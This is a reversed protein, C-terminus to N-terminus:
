KLFRLLLVELGLFLLAMLICWKWLRTGESLESLQKTVSGAIANIIKVNNLNYQSLQAEIENVTLNTLDSENRDYNFAVVANSQNNMKLQYNGAEKIQDGFFITMQGANNRHQTIVDFNLAPNSLHFVSEGNVLTEDIVFSTARGLTYSLAAQQQSYLAINYLTPAFLYHDVLNSSVNDLPVTFLLVKGKGSKYSSLLADGGQLKLMTERNSQSTVGQQFHRHTLPVDMNEPLRPFVNKYLESQLEITSVKEESTIVAKLVDTNLMLLLENYSAIDASSDPFIVLTGGNDCFKKLESTLGSSITKLNNLVAVKAKQLYTYDMQNVSANKLEFHSDGAFVRQLYINEGSQNISLITANSDILFSFYYSDDFTIPYDTLTVQGSQWGSQTATFSLKTEIFKGAAITLSTASKNVGNITLKLPINEADNDGTNQLRVNIEIPQNLQVVPSTMWCSDIFVNNKQSSALPILSLAIASDNKLASLNYNSKQFDSIIYAQLDKSGSNALAEKQRLAIESITKSSPSIKVLQLQELFEERSLLRQQSATFDDTLLQFRDSAKYALAIEKAKEQAQQILNGEKGVADMSFSNDIFISIVKDTSIVATKTQPIYPQAFAFVLFAVALIRSLLVLLHKLKSRSNTEEKLEKLFRVNTFAVKKFRRFNFLHVIIPITILGLAFLFEPSVFRISM